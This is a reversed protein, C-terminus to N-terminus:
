RREEGGVSTVPDPAWQSAAAYVALIEAESIGRLAPRRGAWARSCSRAAAAIASRRFRPLDIGWASPWARAGRIPDADLDIEAAVIRWIRVLRARDGFRRDGEMVRRWVEPLLRLTAPVKRSRQASSIENALYWHKAGYPDRGALAWGAHTEGSAAALLLRIRDDFGRRLGEHATRAAQAALGEAAADQVDGPESGVYGGIIRLLIEAAGERLAIGDLSRTLEPDLVISDAKLAAGAVLRRSAAGELCAVAGAESGTGLTTPILVLPVRKRGWAEPVLFVGFSEAYRQAARLGTNSGRFLRILKAADMVSGGGVGVVADIREAAGVERQVRDLLQTQPERRPEVCIVRRMREGFGPHRDLVRGDILLLSDETVGLRALSRLAAGAGIVTPVSGDHVAVREPLAQATM